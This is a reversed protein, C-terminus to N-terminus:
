NFEVNFANIQAPYSEMISGDYTIKVSSNQKFESLDKLVAGDQPVRVIIKDSSKLEDEGQDPEVLLSTKNNELVTASFSVADLSGDNAKDNEILRHVNFIVIASCLVLGIMFLISKKSM